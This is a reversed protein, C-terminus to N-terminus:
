KELLLFQLFIFCIQLMSNNAKKSNIEIKNNIKTCVGWLIDNQAGSLFGM